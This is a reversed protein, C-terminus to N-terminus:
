GGWSLRSLEIRTELSTYLDLDSALGLWYEGSEPVRIVITFAGLATVQVRGAPRGDRVLSMSFAGQRVRGEAVVFSGTRLPREVTRILDVEIRAVSVGRSTVHNIRLTPEDAVRSGFLDALRPPTPYGRITWHGDALAVVNSLYAVDTAAVEGGQRSLARRVDDDGLTSPFRHDGDREMPLRTFPRRVAGDALMITALAPLRGTDVLRDFGILCPAHETAFELQRFYGCKATLAPTALTVAGHGAGGLDIGILRSFDCRPSSASSSLELWMTSATCRAGGIRLRIYTSPPAAPSVPQFVTRSGQQDTVGGRLVVPVHPAGLVIGAFREVASEQYLRLAFLPVAALVVTAALWAGGKAAVVFLRRNRAVVGGLVSLVARLAVLLGWLGVIELHFYHRGSFQIAPYCALLALSVFALLGLSPSTAAVAAAALCVFVIGFGSLPSLIVERVRYLSAAFGDTVGIPPLLYAFPLDLVLSAAAYARTLLDAPFTTALGKLLLWGRRDHTANAPLAGPHLEANAVTLHFLYDDTFLSGWDYSGGGLRLRDTFFTMLGGLIRHPTGQAADAPALLMTITIVLGAAVVSVGCAPLVHRGGRWGAVAVATLLPVVLVIVDGRVWAGFGIVLAATVALALIRLPRGPSIGVHVILLLAGLMVPAKAYDRLVSPVLMHLHLPSILFATTGAIAWASPVSTSLLAFAIAGTLGYLVGHPILYRPLPSMGVVNGSYSVAESNIGTTPLYFLSLDSVVLNSLFLAAIGAGAVFIAAACAFKHVHSPSPRAFLLTLWGSNSLGLLRGRM